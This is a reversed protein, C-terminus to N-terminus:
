GAPASGQRRRARETPVPLRAIQEDLVTTVVAPSWAAARELKRRRLWMAWLRAEYRAVGAIAALHMERQPLDRSLSKRAEAHKAYLSVSAYRSRPSVILSEGPEYYLKMRAAAAASARADILARVQATSELWTSRQVDVRGLVYEGARLARRVRPSLRMQLRECFAEVCQEVVLLLDPEGGLNHGHLFAYPNGRIELNGRRYRVQITAGHAGEVGRWRRAEGEKEGAPSVFILYGGHVGEAGEMALRLTVYDIGEVSRAGQPGYPVQSAQKAVVGQQGGLRGPAPTATNSAVGRDFHGTGSQDLDPSQGARAHWACHWSADRVRPVYGPPALPAVVVASASM